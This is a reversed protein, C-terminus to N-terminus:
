VRNEQKLTVLEESSTPHIAITRDFDKKTAGMNIAVAFGQLMEDVADGVMHLGVIKEDPGACILKFVTQKGHDAFAYKMPTFATQYIVVNSHESRAQQETLGITGVPPHAFVVSPIGEYNVPEVEQDSFWHEALRRGAAIAVPTLPAKGIIDGIAYISPVRTQGWEDVELTGNRAPTLGANELGLQDTNPKRGVAWIVADFSGVSNGKDSSVFIDGESGFLKEVKFGLHLQVGDQTLSAQVTDSVVSDFVELVRNELGFISVESGLSSLVGALEVGIYGAGIIAVKQPREQLQFFGDSTIGLEAGEVPPVFPRGGTALVIREATFRDGAVEVTHEDVLTAKGEIREIGLADVHGAWYQNIPSIYGNRQDVLQKWSVTAPEAAIGFSPANNVATAAEAAYWMVKKPVCGANVCTGGLPNPDVIAVKRGHKAAIEVVALGGSGGGIALVDYHNM